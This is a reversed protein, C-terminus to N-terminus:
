LPPRSMVRSALFVDAKTVLGIESLRVCDLLPDFRAASFTPGGCGVHYPSPDFFAAWAPLFQIPLFHKLQHLQILSGHAAMRCGALALANLDDQMVPASEDM